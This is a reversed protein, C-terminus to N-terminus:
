GAKRAAITQAIDRVASEYGIRWCVGTMAGWKGQRDPRVLPRLIAMVQTLHNKVAQPSIFLQDGVEANTMGDCRLEVIRRVHPTLENWAARFARHREIDIVSAM